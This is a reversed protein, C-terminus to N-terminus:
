SKLHDFVFFEEDPKKKQIQSDVFQNFILYYKTLRIVSLSLM